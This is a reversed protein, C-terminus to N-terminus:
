DAVNDERFRVQLFYAIKEQCQKLTTRAEYCRSIYSSYSDIMVGSQFPHLENM